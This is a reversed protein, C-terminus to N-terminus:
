PLPLLQRLRSVYFLLIVIAVLGLIGVVYLVTGLVRVARSPAESGEMGRDPQQIGPDQETTMVM